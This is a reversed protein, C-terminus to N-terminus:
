RNILNVNLYIVMGSVGDRDTRINILSDLSRKPVFWCRKEALTAEQSSSAISAEDLPIVNRIVSINQGPNNTDEIWMKAQYSINSPAASVFIAMLESKVFYQLHAYFKEGHVQLCALMWYQDEQTLLTKDKPSRVNLCVCFLGPLHPQPVSAILFCCQSAIAHDFFKSM